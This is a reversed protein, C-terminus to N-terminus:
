PYSSWSQSIACLDAANYWLATAYGNYQFFYLGGVLVSLASILVPIKSALTARDLQAECECFEASGAESYQKLIVYWVYYM